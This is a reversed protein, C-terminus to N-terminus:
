DRRGPAWAWLGGLVLGCLAVFWDGWRSYITPFTASRVEALKRTVEFLGTQSHIVGHPEVIMSVGSYTSRIMPVGLETSRAAALMGHQYPAASDGFWADNTVNVFLDPSAFLRCTDPLIAEYCIPAAMRLGAVELVIPDVGARFDGIGGIAKALGPFYEGMPMYEGFPLPILKHYPETMEGEADFAYVSNYVEIGDPVDKVTGAGVVMAFRGERALRSLRKQVRNGRRRETQNRGRNNLYPSAGEPWVVLDVTDPPITETWEVWEMLGARSGMAMREVMTVSSQLQALKVVRAERLGAEISEYRWSGYVVVGLLAAAFGLAAFGPPERNGERLRYFWEGLVANGLFILYTLGWVGTVGVIQWTLAVQYQGVGHNYPFLFLKMMGYEALVWLAPWALVWWTGLRKRLPHVSGWLLIYPAGFASAFLLLIGFAAVFPLNSFLDITDILWRFIAAVGFVGYLYGLWRNSRGAGERVVWFMPLLGFWQLWHLNTPPAELSMFSCAILTVAIRLALDARSGEVL